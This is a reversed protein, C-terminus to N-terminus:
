SATSAVQFVADFVRLLDKLQIPKSVYDDMGSQLCRERDGTMAHATMAIIPIHRGTGTERARIAQTAEFGDLEPMQVDMLVADFSGQAVAEVAQKGNAVPTVFHGAKQLLYVAVKQNVPNDEALLLRLPLGGGTSTPASAGQDQAPHSSHQHRAADNLAVLIAIQLEDAKVPKVLYAALGLARCRSADNQCDASTLMMIASPALGPHKRLEGILTFGDMGPMMQDLLMLRYPKGAKTARRLEDIAARGSDVCTPCADWLRLLGSLVRRNTENDDVVLVPLGRLKEPKLPQPATDPGNAKGFQATFRFTSGRGVESELEIRGGMLDVLRTSISLGLGTGGYHRTTSGDVQSFPDFIVRQKERPIGIGTDTVAFEVVFADASQGHLTACVVVEGTETFKIANGVLNVLVQRVRGADGVVREPMNLDIDCTLELGKRHARLALTKLTEELISRLRFEVPDLDLKGAEIKSFDLIDNIVTMLSESSSKVLQLSERQDPALETDLVLETMGIIGNMPTRIEHSMNALFESKAKSAQLAAAAMENARDTAAQLQENAATLQSNTVRLDATRESVLQELDVLRSRVLRGLKWKQSLSSALQQVEINDFPKKLVVLRDSRGLKELMDSWSYDSYATCIVIQVDPDREWIRATTEIGDWGPPMRVDVFALAYPRAEELARVVLSLGEQGQFACDIQYNQQARPSAREGFLAARAEDLSANDEAEGGLIKRFDQHIAENDDIVLIRANFKDTMAM